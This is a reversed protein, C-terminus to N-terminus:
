SESQDMIPQRYALMDSDELKLSWPTFLRRHQLWLNHIRQRIYPETFFVASASIDELRTVADVVSVVALAEFYFISDKPLNQPVSCQFGERNGIHKQGYM